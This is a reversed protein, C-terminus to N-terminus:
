PSYCLIEGINKLSGSPVSSIMTTESHDHYSFLMLVARILMGLLCCDFSSGLKQTKKSM